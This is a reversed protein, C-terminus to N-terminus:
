SLYTLMCLITIAVSLAHWEYDDKNRVYLFYFGLLVFLLALSFYPQKFNSLYCLYLNYFILLYAFVKDLIEFKKNTNLHFLISCIIVFFLIISLIFLDYYSAIILPILFFVNSWVSSKIKM